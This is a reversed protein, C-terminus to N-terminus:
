RTRAARRAARRDRRKGNVLVEILQEREDIVRARDAASAEIQLLQTKLNLADLEAARARENAERIQDLVVLLAEGDLNHAPQQSQRPTTADLKRSRRAEILSQRTVSAVHADDARELEGREILREVTRRSCNLAKAALELPINDDTVTTDNRM